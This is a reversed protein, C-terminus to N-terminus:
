SCEGEISNSLTAPAKATAGTRCGRSPFVSCKQYLSVDNNSIGKIKHIVLNLMMHLVIGHRDNLEFRPMSSLFSGKEKPSERALAHMERVALGERKRRVAYAM